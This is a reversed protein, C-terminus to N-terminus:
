YFIKNIKNLTDLFKIVYKRADSGSGNYLEIAKIFDNNSIKLKNQLICLGFAINYEIEFLRLENAEIDYCKLTYVQMLGKAGVPSIANINFTSEIEILGLTIAWHINYYKSQKIITKTILKYQKEKLNVNVSKIYNEIKKNLNIIEYASCNKIFIFLSFLFIVYILVLKNNM